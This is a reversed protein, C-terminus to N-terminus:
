CASNPGWSQLHVAEGDKLSSRALKKLKNRREYSLERVLVLEDVRAAGQSHGHSRRELTGWRTPGQNSPKNTGYLTCCPAQSHVQFRGPLILM